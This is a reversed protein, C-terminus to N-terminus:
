LSGIFNWKLNLTAKVADVPKMTNIDKPLYAVYYDYTSEMYGMGNEYVQKAICPFKSPVKSLVSAHKYELWEKKNKIFTLKNEETDNDDNSM